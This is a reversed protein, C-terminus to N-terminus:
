IMTNELCVSNLDGRFYMVQVLLLNNQKSMTDFVIGTVLIVSNLDGRFHLVIAIKLYVTKNSMTEFVIGTVLIIISLTKHLQFHISIM